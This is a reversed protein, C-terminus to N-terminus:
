NFLFFLPVPRYMQNQPPYPASIIQPQPAPRIGAVQNPTFNAGSTNVYMPVTPPVKQFFLKSHNDVSLQVLNKSTVM